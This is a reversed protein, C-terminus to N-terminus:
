GIRLAHLAAIDLEGDGRDVLAELLEITREACPLELELREALERATSLDKLLTRVHARPEYDREIMRSGHTQLPRCDASGGRVARQVLRPDVGARESLALAEAVSEILVAVITQNALKAIHGAGPGGVRVPAPGLAHLLPLVRRYDPDSGGAMIALSGDRAGQPGGSVPADVWGVGRGALRDAHARSRWPKSSGMDLVISGALLHPDLRELVEDVANSDPLFLLVVDAAAADALSTCRRPRTSDPEPPSRRWGRVDFGEDMLRLAAPRGMLGLGVVAVSPRSM